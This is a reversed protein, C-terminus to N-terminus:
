NLWMQMIGKVMYPLLEWTLPILVQVGKPTTMIWGLVSLQLYPVWFFVSGEPGGLYRRINVKRVILVALNGTVNNLDM